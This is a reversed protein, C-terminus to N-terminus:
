ALRPPIEYILVQGSQTILAFRHNEPTSLVALPQDQPGPATAAFHLKGGTTSFVEINDATAAILWGGRNLGVAPEALESAFTTHPADATDGWLIAGGQECGLVIRPRSHLASGTISLIPSPVACVTQRLRKHILRPGIGLYYDAARCYFPLPQRLIYDLDPLDQLEFHVAQVGPLPRQNDYPTLVLSIDDGGGEFRGVLVTHGPGYALVRTQEDCGSHYTVALARAFQDTEAFCSMSDPVGPAVFIYLPELGRPDAALLIPQAQQHPTARPKPTLRQMAGTWNGRVLVLHNDLWGAAYFQEGIGIATKWAGPPLRLTSVIRVVPRPKQRSGTQLRQRDASESHQALYRDCDRVLLKDAPVLSAFADLLSRTEATSAFPLREAVLVRTSEAAAGRVEEAPYQQAAQALAAALVPIKEGRTAPVLAAIQQRAQEHWGHRGLLHFSADLCARAQQSNPWGAVLTQQAEEPEHLKHEILNAAGLHDNVVLKAMVAKRIAAAAEGPRDLKSYLEAAKEWQQLQEYLAIAEAWLGGQELCRAAAQPQKLRQEYLVAAERYHGGAALTAAATTLDGLLEAFIYAARRHRGLSIERNALSRYQEALKRRYEDNLNWFDAAGGGGVGMLSFDVNREVLSAGPRALGRHLGGGAGFPIAFRLGVDPSNQLMNLLREIQRNRLRDLNSALAQQQNRAWDALRELWNSGAAASANSTRQPQVGRSQTGGASLMGALSQVRAAMASAAAGVAGAAAAAATLGAQAVAQGIAGGAPEGPHSPLQGGALPQTGIDGRAAAILDELTPRQTPEISLLRQNFAIGTQAADWREGSEKPPVLLDSVSIVDAPEYRLLGLRPHWVYLADGEPLLNALERDALPPDIAAEVPLYVREAIRGYAQGTPCVNKDAACSTTNAPLLVLLGAEAVHLLRVEALPVNWATMEELWAAADGGPILWAAAARQPTTCYRLELTVNM